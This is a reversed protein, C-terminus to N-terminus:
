FYGPLIENLTIEYVLETGEPVTVGPPALKAPVIAIRKGGVDYWGRALIACTEEAIAQRHAKGAKHDTRTPPM